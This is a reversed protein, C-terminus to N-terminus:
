ILVISREEVTCEAELGGILYEIAGKLRILGMELDM